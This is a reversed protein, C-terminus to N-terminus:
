IMIILIREQNPNYKAPVTVKSDVDFIFRVYYFIKIYYTNTKIHYSIKLHYMGRVCSRTYECICLGMDVQKNIIVNYIILLMYYM